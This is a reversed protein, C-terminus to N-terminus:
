SIILDIQLYQSTSKAKGCSEGPALGQSKCARFSIDHLPTIYMSPLFGDAGFNHNLLRIINQRM